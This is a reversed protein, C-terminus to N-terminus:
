CWGSFTGLCFMQIYHVKEPQHSHVQFAVLDSATSARRQTLIFPLRNCSCFICCSPPNALRRPQRLGKLDFRGSNRVEGGGGEQQTNQEQLQSRRSSRDHHSTDSGRFRFLHIQQLPETEVKEQILCSAAICGQSTPPVNQSTICYSYFLVTEQALRHMSYRSSVAKCVAGSWGRRCYPELIDIVSRDNPWMSCLLQLTKMFVDVSLVRVNCKGSFMLLFPFQGKEIDLLWFGRLISWMLKYFVWECRSNCGKGNVGGGPHQSTAPCPGGPKVGCVLLGFQLVELM